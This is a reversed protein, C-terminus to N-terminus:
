KKQRRFEQPTVRLIDRFVKCFYSPGSFGCATAIDTISRNTDLLLRAAENVRHHMLYLTPTTGLVQKFCRYCERTCINAAQAILPVTLEEGYRSHICALMLKIRSTDNQSASGEKLRCRVDRYLAQWAQM